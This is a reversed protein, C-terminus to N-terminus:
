IKKFLYRASGMMGAGDSLFGIKKLDDAMSVRSAVSQPFYLQCNYLRATSDGWLGAINLGDWVKRPGDDGIFGKALAIQEESSPNPKYYFVFIDVDIHDQPTRGAMDAVDNRAIRVERVLPSESVQRLLRLLEGWTIANDAKAASAKIGAGKVTAKIPLKEAGWTCQGIYELFEKKLSQGEMTAGETCELIAELDVRKGNEMEAVFRISVPFGRDDNSTNVVGSNSVACQVFFDAKM